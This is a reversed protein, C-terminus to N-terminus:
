REAAHVFANVVIQELLQPLIVRCRDLDQPSPHRNTLPRMENLSRRCRSPPPVSIVLSFPGPLSGLKARVGLPISEVSSVAIDAFAADETSEAISNPPPSSPPTM